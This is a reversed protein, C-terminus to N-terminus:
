QKSASKPGSIFKSEPAKWDRQPFRATAALQSIFNQEAVQLRKDVRRKLCHFLPKRQKLFELRMDQELVLQAGTRWQHLVMEQQIGTVQTLMKVNMDKSLNEVLTEEEILQKNKLTEQMSILHKKKDQRYAKMIEEIEQYYNQVLSAAGGMTVYVSEAAREIMENKLKESNPGHHQKASHLSAHEILAIGTVQEMFHRLHDMAAQTDENLQNHILTETEQCLKDQDESLGALLNKQLRKNEDEDQDWIASEKMQQDRLEELLSKGKSLRMDKLMKLSLQRLALQRVMAQLALKHELVIRKSVEEDLGSQRKLFGQIIKEQQDVLHQQKASALVQDEQWTQKVQTVNDQVLKLHRKREETAREKSATLDQLMHTRLIEMKCSPVETLNPLTELFLEKVLKEAASSSASHLRKWLENVERADKNDEENEAACRVHWQREMLEHYSKIFETPDLMQQAQDTLNVTDNRQTDKLRKMLVKRQKKMDLVREKTQKICERKCMQMEDQLDHQFRSLIEEKQMFSLQGDSSLTDLISSVMKSRDRTERQTLWMFSHLRKAMLEWHLLNDQIVTAQLNQFDTQLNEVQYMKECTNRMIDEVTTKPLKSHNLFFGRANKIQELFGSIQRIAYQLYNSENQETEELTYCADSDKREATASPMFQHQKKLEELEKEQTSLFEKYFDEEIKENVYLDNLQIRLIQLFMTYKEGHLDTDLQKLAQLNLSYLGLEIQPSTYVLLEPLFTVKPFIEDKYTNPDSSSNNGTFYCNKEDEQSYSESIFTTDEQPRKVQHRQKVDKLLSPNSSGDALPRFKQNIPYIVKARLAFAAIDSNLSTENEELFPSGQNQHGIGQFARTNSENRQSEESDSNEIFGSSYNDKRQLAPELVFKYLLGGAAFGLLVGLVVAIALHQPYVQLQTSAVALAAQASCSELTM